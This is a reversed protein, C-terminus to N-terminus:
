PEECFCVPPGDSVTITTWHRGDTCVDGETACRPYCEVEPGKAICVGEGDDCTITPGMYRTAETCTDDNACGVCVALLLVLRAIV